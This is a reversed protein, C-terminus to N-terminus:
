ITHKRPLGRGGPVMISISEVGLVKKLQAAQTPSLAAISRKAAGLADRLQRKRACRSCKAGKTSKLSKAAGALSSSIATVRPDALIAELTKQELLINKKM